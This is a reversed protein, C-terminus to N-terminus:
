QEDVVRRTLACSALTSGTEAVGKIVATRHSQKPIWLCTAGLRLHIKPRVPGVAM